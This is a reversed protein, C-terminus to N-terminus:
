KAGYIDHIRKARTRGIDDLETLDFGEAILSKLSEVDLSNAVLAAATGEDLGDALFTALATDTQEPPDASEPEPEVAPESELEPEGSPEPQTVPVPEDDVQIISDPEASEPEAQPEVEVKSQAQLGLKVEEVEEMKAHRYQLAALLTDIAVDTEVIAVVDDPTYDVGEVNMPRMMKVEYRKM